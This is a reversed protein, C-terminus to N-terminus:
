GTPVTGGTGTVVTYSAAVERAGATTTVRLTNQVLGRFACSGTMRVVTTGTGDRPRLHLPTFSLSDYLNTSRIVDNALVSANSSVKLVSVEDATTNIMAVRFEVQFDAQGARCQPRDPVVAVSAIQVVNLPPDSGVDDGSCAAVVLSSAFILLRSTRM